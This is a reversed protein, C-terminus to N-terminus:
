PNTWMWAVPGYNIHWVILGLSVLGLTIPLFYELLWTIILAKQYTRFSKAFDQAYLGHEEFSQFSHTLSDFSKSLM